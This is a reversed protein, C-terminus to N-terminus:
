FCRDAITFWVDADRRFGYDMGNWAEHSSIEARLTDITSGRETSRGVWAACGTRRLARKATKLVGRYYNSPNLAENFHGSMWPKLLESASAENVSVEFRPSAGEAVEIRKVMPARKVGNLIVEQLLNKIFHYGALNAALDGNSWVATLRMGYFGRETRQGWKIAERIGAEETLGARMQKQVIKYYDYGQPFFHGIKDTGMEHGFLNVTPSLTLHTLRYHFFISDRYRPKFRSNAVKFEHKGMFREIKSGPFGVGLRRDFEEVLVPDANAREEPKKELRTNAAEVALVLQQFVFESTEPGIDSLPAPALNFQDSEFAQAPTGYFSFFTFGLTLRVWAQNKTM